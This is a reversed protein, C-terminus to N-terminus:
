ARDENKITVRLQSYIRKHRLSFSSYFFFHIFLVWLSFEDSTSFVRFLKIIMEILSSDRSHVFVCSFYMWSLSIIFLRRRRHFSTHFDCQRHHFHYHYSTLRCFFTSRPPLSSTFKSDSWHNTKRLLFVEIEERVVRKEREEYDDCAPLCSIVKWNVFYYFVLIYM